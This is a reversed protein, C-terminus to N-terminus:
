RPQITGLSVSEKFLPVTMSGLPIPQTSGAPVGTAKATIVSGANGLVAFQGIAGTATTPALFDQEHLPYVLCPVPQTGTSVCSPVPLGDATATVHANAVPHRACDEVTGVALGLTFTGRLQSVVGAFDDIDWGIAHEVAGADVEALTHTLSEFQYTRVCTDPCGQGAVRWSAYSNSAVTLTANGSSDTTVAAGQPIGRSDVLVLQTGTALKLRLSRVHFAHPIAKQPAGADVAGACSYDAPVGSDASVLLGSDLALTVDAGADPPGADLTATVDTRRGHRAVRRRALDHLWSGGSCLWAM